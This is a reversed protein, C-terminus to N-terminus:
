SWNQKNKLAETEISNIYAKIAPHDPGIKNTRGHQERYQELIKPLYTDFARWSLDKDAM